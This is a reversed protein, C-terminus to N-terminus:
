WGSHGGGLNINVSRLHSLCPVAMGLAQLDENSGSSSTYMLGQCNPFSSEVPLSILKAGDQGTMSLSTGLSRVQYLCPLFAQIGCKSAHLRQLSAYYLGKQMTISQHTFVYRAAVCAFCTSIHNPLKYKQRSRAPPLDM